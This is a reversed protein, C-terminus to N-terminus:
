DFLADIDCQSAVDEDDDLAPGNLLEQHNAREPLEVKEVGAFSEIGGWIEMMRDVREEIFRFANVVKTIRQGTLDQFNCAEFIKVVQEQIDSAAGQHPTNKLAAVLDDANTDIEEAAQLISETATETGEVIAGLEDTMRSVNLDDRGADHLTAIERKTQAIADHIDKLEAKIKQAEQLEYRCTDVVQQSLPEHPSMQNTIGALARMVEDHRAQASSDPVVSLETAGKGVGREIRFVRKTAAGM